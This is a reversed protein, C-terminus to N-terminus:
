ETGSRELLYAIASDRQGIVLAAGPAAAVGTAGLLGDVGAVGDRWSQLLSLPEGHFGVRFAMLSDSRTNTVFLVSGATDLALASPADLLGFGPDSQRIIHTFNLNGSSV